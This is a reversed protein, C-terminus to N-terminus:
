KSGSQKIFFSEYIGHEKKRGKREFSTQPRWPPLGPDNRGDRISLIEEKEGDEPSTDPLIAFSEFPSCLSTFSRFVDQMQVGYDQWDTVAYIYGGTKLLSIMKAAFERNILRRKNHKKKHWPDPFFIHFGDFLVKGSLADLVEVADHRIVRINELKKESALKLLNGVGPPYVEIGLYSDKRNKEAILATAEGNGFGIEAVLKGEAAAAKELFEPVEGDRCIKEFPLIYFQSYKEMANHQAKTMRGTRLVFSRISRNRNEHM